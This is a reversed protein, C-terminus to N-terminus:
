RPWPRDEIKEVAENYRTLVAAFADVEAPTWDGLIDSLCDRIRDREGHLRSLGEETVCLMRAMGGGPDPIRHVLGAKLMAAVQRHVTSVDLGFAEALGAIAMPGSAHLRSLLLYASRDLRGRAPVMVAHRAALMLERELTTWHDPV